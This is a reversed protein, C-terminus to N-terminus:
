EIVLAHKLHVPQQHYEKFATIGGFCELLDTRLLKTPQESLIETYSSWKWEEISNCYGHHVPNKHIYFATAALQRDTEVKVRKLYDMFLAGKRSQVVNFSKAYSNLLKSFQRMVLAPLKEEAVPKKLWNLLSAAEKIQVLFHFHNSLLCYCYTDAVPSIYRDFRSLFFRYNEGTLFLEENGVARSLVHYKEGPLLPIHYDPM